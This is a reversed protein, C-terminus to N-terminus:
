GVFRERPCKEELVIEGKRLKLCLERVGPAEDSAGVEVPRAVPEDALEVTRDLVRGKKLWPLCEFIDEGRLGCALAAQLGHPIAHDAPATSVEVVLEGEDGSERGQEPMPPDFVREWRLGEIM